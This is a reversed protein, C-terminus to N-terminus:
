GKIREISKAVSVRGAFFAILAIFIYLLVVSINPALKKLLVVLAKWIAAFGGVQAFCTIIVAIVAIIILTRLVKEDDFKKRMNNEEKISLEQSM